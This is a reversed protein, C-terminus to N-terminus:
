SFAVTPIHCSWNFHVTATSVSEYTQTCTPIVRIVKVNTETPVILLTSVTCLM